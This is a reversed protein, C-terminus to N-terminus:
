LEEMKKKHAEYDLVEKKMTKDIIISGEPPEEWRSEQTFPNFYYCLKYTADYHKEFTTEV